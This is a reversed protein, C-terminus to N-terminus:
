INRIKNMVKNYILNCMNQIYLSPSLKYVPVINKIHKDPNKKEPTLELDMIILELDM